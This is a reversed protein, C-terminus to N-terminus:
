RGARYGKFYSEALYIPLRGMVSRLRCVPRDDFQPAPAVLECNQNSGNGLAVQINLHQAVKKGFDATLVMLSVAIGAVLLQPLLGWVSSHARVRLALPDPHILSGMFILGASTILFVAALALLWAQGPATPALSGALCSFVGLPFGLSHGEEMAVLLVLWALACVVGLEIAEVNEPNWEATAMLVPIGAGFLSAYIWALRAPDHLFRTLPSAVAVPLMSLIFLHPGAPLLYYALICCVAAYQVVIAFRFLM